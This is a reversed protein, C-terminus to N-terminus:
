LTKWTVGGAIEIKKDVASCTALRDDGSEWYNESTVLTDSSFADLSTIIGSGIDLDKWELSDTDWEYYRVEGDVDNVRVVKGNATFSDGLANRQALNDVTLMAKALAETDVQGPCPGPQPPCPPQNPRCSSSGNTVVISLSILDEDTVPIIDNSPIARFYWGSAPSDGSTYWGYSVVWKIGSFRSLTVIDGEYIRQGTDPVILYDVNM